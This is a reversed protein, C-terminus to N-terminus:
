YPKFTKRQKKGVYSKPKRKVMERTESRIKIRFQQLLKDFREKTDSMRVNLETRASGSSPTEVGIKVLVNQRIMKLEEGCSKIKTDLFEIASQMADKKLNEMKSNWLDKFEDNLSQDGLNPSCDLRLHMFPPQKGSTLGYSLGERACVIKHRIELHAAFEDSAESVLDKFEKSVTDDSNTPPNSLDLSYDFTDEVNERQMKKYHEQNGPITHDSEGVESKKCLSLRSM